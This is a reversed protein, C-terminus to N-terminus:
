IPEEDMVAMVGDEVFVEIGEGVPCRCQNGWGRWTEVDLKKEVLWAFM